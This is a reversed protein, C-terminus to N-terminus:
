DGVAPSDLAGIKRLDAFTRAADEPDVRNIAFGVHVLVYDGPAVEPTYALNITRRTGCFDVWGSRFAPDDGDISLIKGPITLCM